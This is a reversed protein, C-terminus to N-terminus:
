KVFLKIFTMQLEPWVLEYLARREEPVDDKSISLILILEPRVGLAKAILNLTQKRPSTHGKILMSISTESRKTIHALDKQTMGKKDLLLKIAKGADM